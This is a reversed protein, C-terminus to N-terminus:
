GSADMVSDRGLHMHLLSVGPVIGLAEETRVSRSMIQGTGVGVDWSDVTCEKHNGSWAKGEIKLVIRWHVRPVM